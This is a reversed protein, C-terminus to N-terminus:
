TARWNPETRHGRLRRAVAGFGKDILGALGAPLFLLVAITAAGILVLRLAGADSLARDLLTVLAAGLPPGWTRGVGGLFIMSLGFTIFGFSFLTGDAVRFYSVYLAGTLGAVGGSLMFAFLQQRIRSIGRSAALNENDRLAILSLGFGSRLLLSMGILLVALLGGLLWLYGLGNYRGLSFDGVTLWRLGALGNSGGTVSPLALVLYYCLQVFVFTMLAIYIGRMRVVPVYALAGSVAGALTAVVLGLWPNLEYRVVSIAMAYGGVGFFGVHAFNFIGGFGLTLNWSTTLLAYLLITIAALRMPGSVVLYPLAYAAALLALAPLWRAKM